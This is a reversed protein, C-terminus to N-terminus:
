FPKTDIKSLAGCMWDSTGLWVVTYTEGDIHDPRDWDICFTPNPEPVVTPDQPAPTRLVPQDFLWCAVGDIAAGFEGRVVAVVGISWPHDEHRYIVIALRDARYSCETVAAVAIFRDFVGKVEGLFHQIAVADKKDSVLGSIQNYIGAFPLCPNAAFTEITAEYPSTDFSPLLSRVRDGPRGCGVKTSGSGGGSSEGTPESGPRASQDPPECSSLLVSVIFVMAAFRPLRRTKRMGAFDRSSM